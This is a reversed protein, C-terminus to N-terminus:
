RNLGSARNAPRTVATTVAEATGVVHVHRRARTVATYLLERTLIPSSAEPLIVTLDTFQSGQSKHITMAHMPRASDLVLTSFLHPEGGTAFAGLLGQPTDVVIGTDGNSLGIDRQNVTNLLPLGAFWEDPDTLEPGLWGRIRAEWATVGWPGARHACLLRHDDLRALSGAADGQTALHRLTRGHDRVTSRVSALTVDDATAPDAETFVVDEHGGRLVALTADADGARIADALHAIGHEFRFTHALRVIPPTPPAFPREPTALAALRQPLDPDGTAVASATIDAMVAGAEVSALQDPDGVCILRCGPPIAELLRAMLGLAVMSMEDVVVVDHPLPSEATYRFGRSPISGLLRHVTVGDPVRDPSILAAWAEPLDDRAQAISETLRAAAKGTPAALAIRLPDGGARRQLENLVALLRAVTHTKGTGPGGALVLRDGLAATAAALRQQDPVEPPLDTGPFLEDLMRGLVADDVVTGSATPPSALWRRLVEEDAFHRAPYLLGGRRRLPAGSDPAEAEDVLGSAMLASWWTDPDPWALAGLVEPDIDTDAQTDFVLDGARSLDVCVSGARLARLAMAIGLLVAEDPEDGPRYLAWARQAAHVDVAGLVGARNFDHLLGRASLVEDARMM